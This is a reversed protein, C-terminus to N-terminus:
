SFIEWLISTSTARRRKPLILPVIKRRFLQLLERGRLDGLELRMILQQFTLTKQM